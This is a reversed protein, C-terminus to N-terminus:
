GDLAIEGNWAEGRQHIEVVVGMSQDAEIRFRSVDLVSMDLVDGVFFDPADGLGKDILFVEVVVDSM